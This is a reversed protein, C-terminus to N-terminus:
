WVTYGGPPIILKRPAEERQGLRSIMFVTLVVSIISVVLLVIQKTASKKPRKDIVQPTTSQPTPNKEFYDSLDINQKENM